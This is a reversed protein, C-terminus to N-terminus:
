MGKPNEATTDRDSDSENDSSNKLAVINHTQEPNYCKNEIIHYNYM